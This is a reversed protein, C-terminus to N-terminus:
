AENVGLGNVRNEVITTATRMAESDVNTGPPLDAELLAQVGGVLDLGLRTVFEKPNEGIPIGPSNPVVVYIALMIVVVILILAKNTNSM